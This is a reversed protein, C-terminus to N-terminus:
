HVHRKLYPARYSFYSFYWAVLPVLNRTLWAAVIGVWASPNYANYFLIVRREGRHQRTWRWIALFSTIGATLTKLPGANIFGIQRYAVGDGLAGEAHNFFLRRLRPYSSVPRLTIVSTNIGHAVMVNLVGQLFKNAAASAAPYNALASDPLIPAILAVVLPQVRAGSGMAPEFESELM